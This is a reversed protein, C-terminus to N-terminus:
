GFLGFVPNEPEVSFSMQKGTSPHVFTLAAACLALNGKEAEGASKQMYCPNYKRDGYLPLGAHAMQVRIQHHRGTDLLIEVCVYKENESLIRYSLHAKKAKKDKAHSIFSCNNKFDRSLYDTLEQWLGPVTGFNQLSLSGEKQCVALYTKKLKGSGLQGTLHAAAKATKAWVMLGEVNQDLRQIIHIQASGLYNNLMSELDWASVRGSQVPIGAPKKLVLIDSDEFLIHDKIQLLDM